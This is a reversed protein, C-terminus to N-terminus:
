KLTSAWEALPGDKAQEVEMALAGAAGGGVGRGFWGLECSGVLALQYDDSLCSVKFSM